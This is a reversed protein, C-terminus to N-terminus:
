SYLSNSSPDVGALLEALSTQELPEMVQRNLKSWRAHVACPDTPACLHNGLLCAASATVEDVAEMVQAPTIHSAPVALEFGGHPGRVSRLIGRKALVRLTKALYNPPAGLSQAIEQASVLGSQSHQGLYLLARLAHEATQSMLLLRTPTNTDNLM